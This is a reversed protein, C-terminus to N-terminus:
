GQLASPFISLAGKELVRRAPSDPFMRLSGVAEAAYQRARDLTYRFAGLRDLLTRIEDLRGGRQPSALLFHIKAADEGKALRLGALLPLTAKGEALDKGPEKGLAQASDTYDRLDDLIQFAMGLSRGFQSLASIEHSSGGAMLGGMICAARILSATKKEAIELYTQESLEWNEHNRIELAQGRVLELLTELTLIPITPNGTQYALRMVAALLFDGALIAMADGWLLNVSPRHRRIRAHDMVDDHLLTGNHLLEVLAAALALGPGAPRGVLSASGYLLASRFRKGPQELAYAVVPALGDCAPLAALIEETSVGSPFGDAHSHSAQSTQREPRVPM